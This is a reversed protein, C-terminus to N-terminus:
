EDKVFTIYFAKAFNDKGLLSAVYVTHDFGGLEYVGQQSTGGNDASQDCLEIVTAAFGKERAVDLLSQGQSSSERIGTLDEAEPNVSEVNKESNLVIGAGANGRLFEQLTAVYTTDEEMEEFEASGDSQLERNRALLNNVDSIVKNLEGFMLTPDVEKRKGRLCEDIQFKVEDFPRITLFYIIGFFIIAVIASTVLSELYAKSNKTAELALSRPAFRIAIIGVVDSGGTEPNFATIKQAIGIQGADLLKRHTVENKRKINSAWERSRISFSDSIYQNLKSIPRVIRGELDFLEYSAIGDERELFSTDVQDLKKEELARANQRAIMRAYTGGRKATEYLLIQKSDNLVPYITLAITVIVFLSLLIGFLVRWEYEENFGHILPMVKFKFFHIPMQVISDPSDDSELFSEREEEKAAAAKKIIKKKEKIEVLQFIVDPIAIKDGNKITKSKVIKGNVFTGNSSKLDKLYAVDGTVTISFHSKSVGDVQFSLDAETDRGAINEGNELEFEQGRLKGAVAVLKFM